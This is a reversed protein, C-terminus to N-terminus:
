NFNKISRQVPQCDLFLGLNNSDGFGNGGSIDQEKNLAMLNELLCFAEFIM